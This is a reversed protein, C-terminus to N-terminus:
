WWTTNCLSTTWFIRISKNHRMDKIKSRSYGNLTAEFSTMVKEKLIYIGPYWNESICNTQRCLFTEQAQIKKTQKNNIYFFSVSPLLSSEFMCIMDNCSTVFHPLVFYGRWNIRWIYKITSRSYGNM